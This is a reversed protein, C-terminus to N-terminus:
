EFALGDECDLLRIQETVWSAGGDLEDDPAQQPIAPILVDDM